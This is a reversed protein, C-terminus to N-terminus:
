IVSNLSFFTIPFRSKKYDVRKCIYIYHLDRAEPQGVNARPRGYAHAAAPQEETDIFNADRKVLAVFQKVLPLGENM